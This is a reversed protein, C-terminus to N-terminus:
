PARPPIARSREFVRDRFAATEAGAADYEEPEVCGPEVCGQEVCGHEVCGHEVCGHEVCSDPAGFSEDHSTPSNFLGDSERGGVSGDDAPVVPDVPPDSCAEITVASTRDGHNSPEGHNIPEGHNHRMTDLVGLGDATQTVPGLEAFADGRGDAVREGALHAYPDFRPSDAVLIEDLADIVLTLDFPRAERSKALMREVLSQLAPRFVASQGRAQQGQAQQGPDPCRDTEIADDLTPPRHSVHMRLVEIINKSKFPPRGTLMEFFLAGLSYIDSRQDIPEGLAQEPSAYLPTGVFGRTVELGDDIWVIGFDLVHIFEDGSSLPEVMINAPKLDRHILGAQHAEHVGRALQRLLGAARRWDLPSESAIVGDLTQGKIFKMVIGVCTDSLSIVEYFPVTHPNQLRSIAEIERDLRARVLEPDKAVSCADLDVVKIAFQRSINLSEAEYVTASAGKGIRRTVLYRGEMVKGLWPDGSDCLRQWGSPPQARGCELCRHDRQYVVGM